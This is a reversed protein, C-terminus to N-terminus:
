ISNPSDTCFNSAYRDLLANYIQLRDLILCGVVVSSFIIKKYCLEVVVLIIFGDYKKM